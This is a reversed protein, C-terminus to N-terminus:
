MLYQGCNNNFTQKGLDDAAMAAHPLVLSANTALMVTLTSTVTAKGLSEM